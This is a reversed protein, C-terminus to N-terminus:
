IYINILGIINMVTYWTMLLFMWSSERVYMAIQLLISGILYFVFVVLMDPAPSQFAMTASAIISAITAIAECWFLAHNEHWTQVWFSWIDRALKM